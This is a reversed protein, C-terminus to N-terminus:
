AKPKSMWETVICRMAGEHVGITQRFYVESDIM